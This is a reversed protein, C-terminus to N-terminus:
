PYQPQQLVGSDNITTWSQGDNASQLVLTSYDPSNGNVAADTLYIWGMAGVTSVGLIRVYPEANTTIPSLTGGTPLADTTPGSSLQGSPAAAEAVGPIIGMPPVGVAVPKDGFAAVGQLAVIGTQSVGPDSSAAPNSTALNSWTGGSQAAVQYGQQPLGQSIVSIGQVVTANGCWLDSWVPAYTSPIPSTYSPVWSAGNDTSSLVTGGANALYLTGNGEVCMADAPVPSSLATWTQGGDSTTVLGGSVTLGYGTTASTFSVSM